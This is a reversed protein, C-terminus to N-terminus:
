DLPMNRMDVYLVLLFGAGLQEFQYYAAPRSYVSVGGVITTATKVLSLTGGIGGQLQGRWSIHGHVLEDTRTLTFVLRRTPSVDFALNNNLVLNAELDAAIRAVRAAVVRSDARRSNLRAIQAPDTIVSDDVLTIASHGPVSLLGMNGTDPPLPVLQRNIQTSDCASAVAVLVCTAPILFAARMPM